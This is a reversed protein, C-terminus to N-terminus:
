FAFSVAAGGVTQKEDHVIVPVIRITETKPTALGVTGGIGVGLTTLGTLAVIGVFDGLNECDWGEDCDGGNDAIAPIGIAAGLALGALAGIGAGRLLHNGRIVQIQIIEESSFSYAKGKRDRATWSDGLVVVNSGKIRKIVRGDKLNFTYKKTPEIQVQSVSQTVVPKEKALVASERLCVLSMFLAILKYKKMHM